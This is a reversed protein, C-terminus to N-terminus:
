MRYTHTVVRYARNIRECDRLIDKKGGPFIRGMMQQMSNDFEREEKSKFIGFFAM